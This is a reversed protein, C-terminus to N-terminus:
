AGHAQRRLRRGACAAALGLLAPLALLAGPEGGTAPLQLPAPQPNAQTGAAM